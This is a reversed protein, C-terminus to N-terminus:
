YAKWESSSSNFCYKYKLFILLVKLWCINKFIQVPKGISGSVFYSVFINVYMPLYQFSGGGDGQHKVMPLNENQKKKWDEMRDKWSVSGYGYLAIDKEPVMPRPLVVDDFFFLM